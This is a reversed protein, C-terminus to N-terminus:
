VSRMMVEFSWEEMWIEIESTSWIGHLDILVTSDVEALVAGKGDRAEDPGGALAVSGELLNEPLPFKDSRM